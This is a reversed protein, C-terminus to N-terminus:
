HYVVTLPPMPLKGGGPVQLAATFDFKVLDGPRVDSVDFRVNVRHYAAPQITYMADTGGPLRRQRAGTATVLEVSDCDVLLPTTSLNKVDFIFLDGGDYQAVRVTVNANQVERTESRDKATSANAVETMQTSSPTACAAFAVSLSLLLVARM